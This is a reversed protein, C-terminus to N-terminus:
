PQKEIQEIARDYRDIHEAAKKMHYASKELHYVSRDVGGEFFYDMAKITEQSFHILHQHAEKYKNPVDLLQLEFAYMSVLGTRGLEHVKQKSEIDSEFVGMLIFELMSMHYGIRGRIRTVEEIYEKEAQATQIQDYYRYIVAVTNIEEGQSYLYYTYTTNILFVASCLAIGLVALNRKSHRFRRIVIFLGFSSLLAAIFPLWSTILGLIGMIISIISYLITPKKKYSYDHPYIRFYASSQKQAQQSHLARGKTPLKCNKCEYDGPDIEETCFSCYKYENNAMQQRVEVCANKTMHSATLAM